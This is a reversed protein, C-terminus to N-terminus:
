QRLSASASASAYGYGYGPARRSRYGNAVVGLVPSKTGELVQRLRRSDDHRDQGLRGVVIVGDVQTLLAIADPVALLPSSDILVFDYAAACEALTTSMAQSELLETPNPPSAGAVIVDLSRPRNARGPVSSLRVTQTAESISAADILVDVLGPDGALELQEAVSPQRLDADLLLVRTGTQAAAVALNVSLTTKGDSPSASVVLLTRLQRDVNFYRLHARILQFAEAEGPALGDSAARSGAGRARGLSPSEPIVGLLPRGYLAEFEAPDRLRTDSREVWFMLALGLLLGLFAGALTNRLVKPSSPSTPLRAAAAIQVAGTPLSALTSLSLARDELALGAAGARESPSLSALQKEVTALAQAYYSRGASEQESVFITSYTNAIARALRPTSAVASIKVLNTDGEAAVSVDSTVKRETLGSRLDHATKAAMDGIEALGVDTDQLSQQTDPSASAQLGSVQEAVQSNSFLLSTTATYKNSEVKSIAFAIAAAVVICLAILGARRRLAAVIRAVDIGPEDSDM